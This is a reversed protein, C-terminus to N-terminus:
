PFSFQTHSTFSVMEDKCLCLTLYFANTLCLPQNGDSSAADQDKTGRRVASTIATGFAVNVPTGDAYCEYRVRGGHRTVNTVDGEDGEDDDDYM